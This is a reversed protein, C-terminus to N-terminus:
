RASCAGADGAIAVFCEIRAEDELARAPAFALLVGGRVELYLPGCRRVAAEVAPPLAALGQRAPAYVRHGPPAVGDGVERLDVLYRELYTGPTLVFDPVRATAPLEYVMLTHRHAVHYDPASTHSYDFVRLRGGAWPGNMENCQERQDGRRLYVFDHRNIVARTAADFQLGLKHALAAMRQAREDRRVQEQAILPEQMRAALPHASFRLFHELGEIAFPRGHSAAEEEVQQLFEVATHDIIRASETFRLLLGDEAPLGAVFKELPLLNFGVLSGMTLVHVTRGDRSEIRHRIVPSRFLGSFNTWLLAMSARLDLRGTLVYRVSPMLLYVLLALEVAVGILMGLLLDTLLIAAVTAVFVVFRDRGIALMRAFLAPECLRWGIYILIGAIAALPIRSLLGPLALTFLLLFLGSYLNSWLTHAGADINARSPVANPIVTLGGLMGSTLNCVGMARLTKNADSKRRWPDIKDVAKVSAVSEVGDILTFTLVVLAMTLWLEPRAAIEAFAPARIGDLASEPMRIRLAEPLGFVWGAVVGFAAVVIAAPLWRWLGTVRRRLAFMLALSAVGIAAVLWQAQLLQGPLNSLSELVSQSPASPAGALPPAQRVIIMIGIAALMAEVVTAPLMAAYQGARLAALLLQLVGTAVVAVLVLPYGAALDGHGLLLMGWLLVPALAAAPGSVTVHSGGLLPYLLGAVIASTLGAIAPAGSAVAVGLSFPTWLLAVQLGAALDHRWHVLGALGAAPAAGAAPDSM